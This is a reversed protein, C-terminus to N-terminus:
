VINGYAVYLLNLSSICALGKKESASTRGTPRWSTDSSQDSKLSDLKHGAAFLFVAHM